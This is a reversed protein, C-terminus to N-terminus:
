GVGPLLAPPREVISSFLKPQIRLPPVRGTTSTNGSPTRGVFFPASM